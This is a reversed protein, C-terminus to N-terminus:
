HIVTLGVALSRARRGVPLGARTASALAREQDRDHGVAAVLLEGLQALQQLCGADGADALQDLPAVVRM